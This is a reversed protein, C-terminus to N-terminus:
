CFFRQSSIHGVTNPSVSFANLDFPVSVLKESVNINNSDLKIYAVNIEISRSSGDDSIGCVGTLQFLNQM